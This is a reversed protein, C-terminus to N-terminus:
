GKTPKQEPVRWVAVTRNELDLRAIDTQRTGFLDAGRMAVHAIERDLLAHAELASYLRKRYLLEAADRRKRTEVQQVWPENPRDRRATLIKYQAM